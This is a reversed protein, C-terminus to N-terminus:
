CAPLMRAYGGNQVPCGVLKVQGPGAESVDTASRRYDPAYIRDAIAMDGTNWWHLWLSVVDGNTRM